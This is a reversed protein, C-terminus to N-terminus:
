ETEPVTLPPIPILRLKLTSAGDATYLLTNKYKANFLGVFLGPPKGQEREELHLVVKLEIDVEPIHYWTVQYGITALEPFETLLASQRELTARDLACQAASFSEAIKQIASALPSILVQSFDVADPM